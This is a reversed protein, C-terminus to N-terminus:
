LWSVGLSKILETRHIFDCARSTFQSLLFNYSERRQNGKAGFARVFRLRLAPENERISQTCLFFIFFSFQEGLSFHIFMSFFAGVVIYISISATCLLNRREKRAELSPVLQPPSSAASAKKDTAGPALL